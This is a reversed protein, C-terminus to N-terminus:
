DRAIRILARGTRAFSRDGCGGSTPDNDERVDQLLSEYHEIIRQVEAERRQLEEELYQIAQDPEDPRVAEADARTRRYAPPGDAGPAPPGDMSM